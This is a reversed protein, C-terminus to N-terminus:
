SRKRRSSNGRQSLLREYAPSKSEFVDQSPLVTVGTCGISRMHEIAPMLQSKPVVVTVSYWGHKGDKSYVRSITPGQLGALAPRSMVSEAVEAESRGNLNAIISYYDHARTRGEIMEILMRTAALKAEDRALAKKSAILCAQSRVITGGTITKLKNERLTNGTSMIDVIIDAYDMAPAVEIAGTAAVTDLYSIGHRGFFAQTLRPYKTAARIERGSNHFELALDALDSVSTVDIWSELVGIVLECRAYGLDELVAASSGGETRDELYRDLGMIGLDITGDELNRPM